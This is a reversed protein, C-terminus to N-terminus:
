FKDSSAEFIWLNDTDFQFRPTCITGKLEVFIINMFGVYKEINNVCVM